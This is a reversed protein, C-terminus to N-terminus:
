RWACNPASIFSPWAPRSRADSTMTTPERVAMCPWRCARRQRSRRGGGGLGSIGNRPLKQTRGIVTPETIVTLSM